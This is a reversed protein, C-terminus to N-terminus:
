CRRRSAFTLLTGGNGDATDGARSAKLSECRRKGLLLRERDPPRQGSIRYADAGSGGSVQLAGGAGPTRARREINGCQKRRGRDSQAPEHPRLRGDRRDIRTPGEDAATLSFHRRRSQLERYRRQPTTASGDAPTVAAMTATPTAHTNPNAHDQPQLAPTPTPCRSRDVEVILPHDTVGLVVSSCMPSRKRPPLAAPRIRNILRVVRPRPDPQRGQFQPEAWAVARHKKILAM